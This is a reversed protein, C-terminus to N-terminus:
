DLNHEFLDILLHVQVNDTRATVRYVYQTDYKLIRTM